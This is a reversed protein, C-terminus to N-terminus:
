EREFLTIVEIHHTQPFMDIVQARKLVYGHSKLVAADRALTDPACSVYVLLAIGRKAIEQVAQLAGARAPDLLAKNYHEKGWGHQPWPQELNACHARVNLQYEAANQQLQQVMSAIGEVATVTAGTQALPITFNGSGAFLEIITDNPAVELWEIAKAVMTQSLQRHSQIFDNPQCTLTAELTAYRPLEQGATLPVVGTDYALWFAVQYQEAFAQLREIDHANLQQALRLLVVPQQVFEILEVHGLANALKTTALLQRLPQVLDSLSQALTLCQDIDTIQKSQPARFGLKLQQRKRDYHVALRARRRYHWADAQLAPLWQQAEIGAFKRLMDQVTQQKHTVQSALDLHQLDCGGCHQYYQCPPAVRQASPQTVKLLTADHKGQTSVDVVEGSLAQPVFRVGKSTRIIGRGQHDLGVVTQGLLKDAKAMRAQPRYIQAM